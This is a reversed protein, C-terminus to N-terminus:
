IDIDLSMVKKFSVHPNNILIHIASAFSFSEYFHHAVGLMVFSAHYM